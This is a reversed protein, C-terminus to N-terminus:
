FNGGSYDWSPTQYTPGQQPQWGIAPFTGSQNSYPGVGSAPAQGTMGPQYGGGQGGFSTPVSSVDTGGGALSSMGGAMLQPNMTFAGVATMGIGAITSLASKKSKNTTTQTESYPVTSLAALLPQLNTIDWDRAEVFQQYDFDLGAQRLNRELGGTTMLNQIDQTLMQQSQGGIARFQDAAARSASRDRNIQDRASEFASAYGRGYLDSIGELGQRAQESEQIAMRSGGFAGIEGARSGLERQQRAMEERIERAAPDLAGKVYPNMYEDMDFSTFPQAAQEAYQRALNMDGAGRGTGGQAMAYAQAENGGMGAVREGSYPVYPRGAIQRALGVAEQSGAEVYQPIDRQQTQTTKSSRSM